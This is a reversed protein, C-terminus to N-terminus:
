LHRVPPAIAGRDRLDRRRSGANWGTSPKTMALPSTTPTRLPPALMPTRRATTSAQPPKSHSLSITRPNMPYSTTGTLAGVLVPSPNCITRSAPAATAFM